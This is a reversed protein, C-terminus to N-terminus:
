KAGWKDKLGKVLKNNDQKQNKKNGPNKHRSQLAKKSLSIRKLERDVKIVKAEVKEGVSVVESPSKVFKNSLESIHILGDEKIGIDVFAGFNTVNTIVGKLIMDEKVDDLSDINENFDFIEFDERPDRGPTKLENIIDKITPLGFEKTIFDNANINNLLKKNKILKSIPISFSKAINRVIFYTEPHIGTSDLPNHGDTIRLFGASQEYSKNGFGKINKLELRNKFKGKSNRFNVIKKALSPGIGSVYKLLHYSAINLDVGVRNVVSVVVSDLKKKLLNQDVDHQYQGVGISRPEIKVLESLPDQFRRGISIAGRVTADFDPFEERAIKSASYISAGAENVVSIILKDKFIKKFFKKTERSATGNGIVVAQINNKELLQQVTKKSEKEKNHPQTPFITTNDLFKGTEDLVAIKCGTKYGPDVGLVKINGAPPSLLLNELNSAFVRIAEEDAMHKLDIRTQISISPLVLRKLSDELFVDLIKKRPHDSKYLLKYAKSQFLKEDIKIKARLVKEKEGRRIALIRHSLLKKISEKYDYYQEYKSRKNKWKKRVSVYLIGIEAIFKRAKKRLQQNESFQEAIIHGAGEIAQEITKIGKEESIFNEAIEELPETNTTDLITEALPKLGKKKAITAKTKKKPKYPLYIDELENKSYTQEVQKRLEPTLKEQSKITKLITEKRKNLEQIFDYLEKIINVKFEDLSGTKEKRYRSIFSVSMDNNFLNIVNTAQWHKIGAKVTIFDIDNNTIM